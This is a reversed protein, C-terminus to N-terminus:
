QVTAQVILKGYCFRVTDGNLKSLDYNLSSKSRGPERVLVYGRAIDPLGEEWCEANLVVVDYTM